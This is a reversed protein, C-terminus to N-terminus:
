ASAAAYTSVTIAGFDSSNFQTKKLGMISFAACELRRKHDLLEENWRYKSPGNNQGFAACAAQAGLLVARRVTTVAAGTSSHVGQTVDQCSRLIVGNYEGLAGTYLPNDSENKASLAAKQIDQWQGTATNTRMATVQYPHLYMVYKPAGNIRVPRIMNNGVKALEVAKDILTLNFTDSSGLGDDATATGAWLRRGSTHAAVANLGTFKTNTQVTYGCVQNFFTQSWRDGWWEALSDKCEERLNFPVRQADITNESKSSAVHGLENIVLSDSYLTLSEGNGEAVENETIGDGTMRARLGFTVRDGAGKKTESKVQIISNPGEGFLPAIELYERMAVTLNKSWIKVALADNVGFSTYSM